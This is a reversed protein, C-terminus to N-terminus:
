ALLRLVQDTFERAAASSFRVDAPSRSYIGKVEANTAGSLSALFARLGAREPGGVFRLANAALQEMTKADLLADQHLGSCLQQFGPPPNAGLRTM